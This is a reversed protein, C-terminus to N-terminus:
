KLIYYKCMGNDPDWHWGTEGGLRANYAYWDKQSSSAHRDMWSSSATMQHDKIEGSQIGLPVRVPCAEIFCLITQANCNVLLSRPM